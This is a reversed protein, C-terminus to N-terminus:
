KLEGGFGGANAPKNPKGHISELSNIELFGEKVVFGLELQKLLLRLTTKLPVGEVELNRVTSTMSKEAEQLGAPDVYIRGALGADGKKAALGIYKVVDELPTDENFSMLIPIELLELIAKSSPITDCAVTTLEKRVMDISENSTILLIDDKVCYAMDLQKLVVPLTTSLPLGKLDIDRVTSTMSKEAEQLGIPDVYIPVGTKISEKTVQKVYKLVDELPTDDIFEMPVPKELADLIAKTGPSIAVSEVPGPGSESPIAKTGPSIAVSEVPGPGSGSPSAPVLRVTLTHSKGADLAVSEGM